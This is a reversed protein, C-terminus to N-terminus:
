KADEQASAVADALPVPCAAQGPVREAPIELAAYAGLTSGPATFVTSGDPQKEGNLFLTDRREPTRVIGPGTVSARVRVIMPAAVAPTPIAEPRGYQSKYGPKVSKGSTNLLQVYIRGAPEGGQLQYCVAVVGAPLNFEVPPPAAHAYDVLAQIATRQAPDEQTRYTSGNRMETEVNRSGLDAAVYLFRGKGVATEVVAPWSKGKDDKGQALIRAGSEPAVRVCTFGAGVRFDLASEGLAGTVTMGSEGPGVYRVGAAKGLAFDRRPAGYEDHLSTHRTWIVTGGQRVWETLHECQAESLSAQSPLVLVTYKGLRDPLELDGDLLTDFQRSGELLMDAWGAMDNWMFRRDADTFRTTNSLLLGTDTLCRAYRHPMVHPWTSHRKLYTVEEPTNIARGGYWVSHKGLQCLAWSFYVAEKTTAERNLSWVPIDYYNGYSLRLKLARLFPRWGNLAEAIMNEWGLFSCHMAAFRTLDISRSAIRSDSFDSCYTMSMVNPRVARVAAMLRRRARPTILSRWRILNRSYASNFSGQGESWPPMPSGTAELFSRRCDDCGCTHASCLGIEDLMYGDVNSARQFDALYESYFTIFDDSNPCAWRWREGTRIDQQLWDLHDLMLPYSRYSFVTFEHHEIVKIGVKHCADAVVRAHRKIEDWEEPYSLRFHRGNYLVGTFGMDRLERARRDATEPDSLSLRDGNNNTAWSAFASNYFGPDVTAYHRPETAVSVRRGVVANAAGPTPAPMRDLKRISVGDVRNDMGDNPSAYSCLIRM